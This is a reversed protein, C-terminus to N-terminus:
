GYKKGLTCCTEYNARADQTACARINKQTKILWKNEEEQFFSNDKLTVFRDRYSHFSPMTTYLHKLSVKIREDKKVKIDFKIPQKKNTKRCRLKYQIEAPQHYLHLKVKSDLNYCAKLDIKVSGNSTYTINLNCKIEGDPIAQIIAEVTKNYTYRYAHYWETFISVQHKTPNIKIKRTKFCEKKDDAQIGPYLNNSSIISAYHYKSASSWNNLNIPRSDIPTLTPKWMSSSIRKVNEDWWRVVKLAM